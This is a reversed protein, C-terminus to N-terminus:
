RERLLDLVTDLKTEVADFRADHQALKTDVADFRTDHDALKADVADFRADHATVKETLTDLRHGHQRQVTQVSSVIDYISTLDNDHQRVKRELEAPNMPM